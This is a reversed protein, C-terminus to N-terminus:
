TAVGFVEAVDGPCAFRLPEGVCRGSRCTMVTDWVVAYAVNSAKFDVMFSQRATGKTSALTFIVCIDKGVKVREREKLATLVSFFVRGM